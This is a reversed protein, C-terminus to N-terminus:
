SSKKSATYITVIGFTMPAATTHFFDCKKLLSLMEKGSPFAEISGGMYEYANSNGTVWGALHPL